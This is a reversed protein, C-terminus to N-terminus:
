ERRATSNQTFMLYLRSIGKDPPGARVRELDLVIISSAIRQLLRDAPEVPLGTDLLTRGVTAPARKSCFDQGRGAVYLGYLRDEPVDAKVVAFRIQANVL